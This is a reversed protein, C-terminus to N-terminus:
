RRKEAHICVHPDVKGQRHMNAERSIQVNHRHTYVSINYTVVYIDTYNDM